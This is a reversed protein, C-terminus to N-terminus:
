NKISLQILILGSIFITLGIIFKKLNINKLGKNYFLLTLLLTTFLAFNLLIHVYVPNTNNKMSMYITYRSILFALITVLLSLMFYNYNKNRYVSLLKITFLHIGIFVSSLLGYIM